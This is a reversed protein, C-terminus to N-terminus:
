RQPAAAGPQPASARKRFPPRFMWALALLLAISAVVFIFVTKSSTKRRVETV